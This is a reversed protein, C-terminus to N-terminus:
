TSRPASGPWPRTSRTTSWRGSWITSAARPGTSGIYMGPRRRVAELGELVTIDKADYTESARNAATLRAGKQPPRNSPVPAFLAAGSTAKCVQLDLRKVPRRPMERGGILVRRHSVDHSSTGPLRVAIRDVIGPGLRSDLRRHLDGVAYRLLGAAPASTAEVVLEGDRLVVPRSVGVWPDGAIEDWHEELDVLVEVPAMGLRRLVDALAADFRVPESM